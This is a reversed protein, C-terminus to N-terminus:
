LGKAKADDLALKRLYTAVKLNEISAAKEILKLEQEDCKFTLRNDKILKMYEGGKTVRNYVLPQGKDILINYYIL